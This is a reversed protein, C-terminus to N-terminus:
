TELELLYMFFHQIVDEHGTSQEFVVCQKLEEATIFREEYRPFISQLTEEFCRPASRPTM